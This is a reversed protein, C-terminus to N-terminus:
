RPHLEFVGPRNQISSALENIPRVSSHLRLAALKERWLFGILPHRPSLYKEIVAGNTVRALKRRTKVEAKRALDGRPAPIVSGRWGITVREDVREGHLVAMPLLEPVARRQCVEAVPDVLNGAVRGLGTFIVFKDLIVEQRVFQADWDCEGARIGAARQRGVRHLPVDPIVVRRVIEFLQRGDPLYPEEIRVLLIWRRHF